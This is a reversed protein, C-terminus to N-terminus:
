KELLRRKVEQIGLPSKVLGREVMSIFRRAKKSITRQIEKSQIIYPKGSVTYPRLIYGATVPFMESIIFARDRGSVPAIAFLFCNGKGSKGEVEEIKAKFKDVKSSIPIMWYIGDSDKVAYYHPRSESKNNMHKDNPFDQFYQDKIIYLGASEIDQM